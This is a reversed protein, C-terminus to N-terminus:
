QATAEATANGRRKEKRGARGDDPNPHDAHAAATQAAQEKMKMDPFDNNHNENDGEQDSGNEGVRKTVKAEPYWELLGFYGNPLKHFTTTNKALSTSLARKATADNKANDFRYGGQLMCDYIEDVSAAGLGLASRKELIMRVATALKKGYFEDSRISAAAGSIPDTTAYVPAKGVIGCLVNVAKKKEALQQELALIESQVQEIAQHVTVGESDHM